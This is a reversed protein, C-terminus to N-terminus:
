YFDWTKPKKMDAGSVTSRYEAERSRIHRMKDSNSVM